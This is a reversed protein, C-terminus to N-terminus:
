VNKTGEEKNRNNTDIWMNTVYDRVLGGLAEYKQQDNGESLEKGHLQVFKNKYDKKFSDKDISLM